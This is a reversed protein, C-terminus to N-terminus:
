DEWPAKKAIFKELWAEMFSFYGHGLDLTSLQFYAEKQFDPPINSIDIDDRQQSLTQRMIKIEQLYGDLVTRWQESSDSFFFLRALLEDKIKGISLPSTLWALYEQEGQVTISFMKKERKGESEKHCNVYGKKLLKQCAPHISGISTNYFMATSKEMNKKLEYVSMPHLSLM